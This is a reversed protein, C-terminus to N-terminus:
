VKESAHVVRYTNPNARDHNSAHVSCHANSSPRGFSSWAASSTVRRQDDEKLESCPAKSLSNM